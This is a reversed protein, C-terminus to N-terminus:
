TGPKVVMVFVIVFLVLIVVRAILVLTNIRAALAPSPGEAAIRAGIGNMERLVYGFAVAAVAAWALVGFVIFPESWGWGGDETLAVGTIFVVISAPLFIRSGVFLVDRGFAATRAPDGSRRALVAFVQAVAAGGIWVIAGVIHLFLWLEYSSM